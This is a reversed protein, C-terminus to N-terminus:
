EGSKTLNVKFRPEVYFRTKNEVEGFVLLTSNYDTWQSSISQIELSGRTRPLILFLAVAIGVLILVGLVIFLLSKSKKGSKGEEPQISMPEKVPEGCHECYRAGQNLRAGCRHCFM